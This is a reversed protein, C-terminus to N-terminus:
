ESRLVKSLGEAMVRGRFQIRAIIASLALGIATFLVAIGLFQFPLLWATVARVQGLDTLVPSGALAADRVGKTNAFYDANIGGLVLGIVLATVEIGLGLALLLYVARIRLLPKIGDRKAESIM